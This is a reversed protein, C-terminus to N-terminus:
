EKVRIKKNHREVLGCDILEDMARYLSTRGMSNLRALSSMDNIEVLNDENMNNRLYLYLKSAGGKCTYLKIKQNLYRIRGTLFAIYNLSVSPYKSFMHNLEAESIFQIICDTKAIIDSIYKEEECFISAVGFMDGETFNKKLVNDSVAECKGSLLIGIAKEFFDSNYIVEGKSFTRVASLKSLINNKETKSLGDFLFLDEINYM